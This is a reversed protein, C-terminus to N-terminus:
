VLIGLGLFRYIFYPFSFGWPHIYLYLGSLKKLIYHHKKSSQQLYWPQCPHSWFLRKGQLKPGLFPIEDRRLLFCLSATAKPVMGGFSLTAGTKGEWLTTIFLGSNLFPFDKFVTNPLSIASVIIQFAFSFTWWASLACPTVQPRSSLSCPPSSSCKVCSCPASSGATVRKHTSHQM